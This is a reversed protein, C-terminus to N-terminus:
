KSGEPTMATVGAYPGTGVRTAAAVSFNYNTNPLLEEVIASSVPGVVITTTNTSYNSDPQALITYSVIIGYPTLPPSWSLSVSSANLVSVQLSAPADAPVLSISCM